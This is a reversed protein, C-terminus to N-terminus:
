QCDADERACKFRVHLHNAHNPEHKVLADTAEHSPYQFLRALTDEDTGNAWAWRWLIGQVHYDLFMVQVGGDKHSTAAFAEIIALTAAPDLNDQTATV